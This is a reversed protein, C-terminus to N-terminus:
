SIRRLYRGRSDGQVIPSGGQYYVGWQVDGTFKQVVLYDVASPPKRVRAGAAKILREPAAPNIEEYSMAGPSLSSNASTSLIEPIEADAAFNVNSLKGARFVQMNLRDRRISLHVIRGPVEKELVKLADRLGAAKFLQRAKVEDPVTDDEPDAAGGGGGVTNPNDFTDLVGRAQDVADKGEDVVSYIGFAIAGIVAFQILFLFPFARRRRGFPSPGSPPPAQTFDTSSAAVTPQTPDTHEPVAPQPTASPDSSTGWGLDGLGADDKKRGFPDLDDSM